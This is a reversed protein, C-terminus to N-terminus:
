NDIVARLSQLIPQYGTCRCINGELADLLEQESPKPTKDLLAKASMLVGPTCFGCQVGGHEVFATQLKQGLSDSALGEVTTVTANDCQAALVLCSCVADGNMIVTCAGCEGVACGEKTGTLNLTDRVFDLLRTSGDVDGSVTQGNVQLSIQSM